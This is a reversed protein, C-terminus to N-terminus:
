VSVTHPVWSRASCPSGSLSGWSKKDGGPSGVTGAKKPNASDQGMQRSSFPKCNRYGKTGRQKGVPPDRQRSPRNGGKNVQVSSLKQTVHQRHGCRLRPNDRTLEPISHGEQQSRKDGQVESINKNSLGQALLLTWTSLEAHLVPALVPGRPPRSHGAQLGPGERHRWCLPLGTTTVHRGTRHAETFAQETPRAM